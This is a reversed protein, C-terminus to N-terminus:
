EGLQLKAEATQITGNLAGVHSLEYGNIQLDGNRDPHVSTSFSLCSTENIEPMGFPNSEITAIMRKLDAISLVCYAETKTQM